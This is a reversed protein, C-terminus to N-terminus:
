IIDKRMMSADKDDHVDGFGRFARMWKAFEANERKKEIRPFLGGRIGDETFHILRRLDRIM